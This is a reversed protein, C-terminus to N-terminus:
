FNGAFGEYTFLWDGGLQGLALINAVGVVKGGSARVAAAGQFGTPVGVEAPLYRLMTQRPQLTIPGVQAVTSGNTDTYTITVGSAITDVNQLLVSSVFRQSSYDNYLAPFHLGREGPTGVPDTAVPGPFGTYTDLAGAANSTNVVAAIKRGDGARVTASGVFGDPLGAPQNGQYYQKAAGPAITDTVTMPASLGTGTFTLQVTTAATDINQVLVSSTWGDGSYTKYVQPLHAVTLDPPNPQGTLPTPVPPVGVTAGLQGSPDVVQAVAVVPHDATVTASGVFGDPLGASAADFDSVGNADIARPGVTAVIIGSADRFTVSVSAAACARDGESRCSANQVSVTSSYRGVYGKFVSPVAVTQGSDVYRMAGHYSTALTPGLALLNTVVAVGGSDSYVLATYRGAPLDTIAPLYIQRSQLKSIRTTPTRLVRSGDPRMIDVYASAGGTFHAYITISTTFTGAVGPVNSNQLVVPLYAAILPALPAQAQAVSRTGGIALAVALVLARLVDITRRRRM